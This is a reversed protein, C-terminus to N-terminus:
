VYQQLRPKAVPLVLLNSDEGFMPATQTRYQVDLAKLSEAHSKQRAERFPRDVFDARLRKKNRAEIQKTKIAREQDHIWRKLAWGHIGGPATAAGITIPKPQTKQKKREMLPVDDDAPYFIEEVADEDQEELVTSCPTFPSPAMRSVVSTDRSGPYKDDELGVSSSWM